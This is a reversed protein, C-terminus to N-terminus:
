RKCSAIVVRRLEEESLPPICEGCRKSMDGIKAAKTAWEGGGAVGQWARSLQANSLHCIALAQYEIIYSYLEALSGLDQYAQRRSFELYTKEASTGICRSM